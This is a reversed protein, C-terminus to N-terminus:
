ESEASGDCIFDDKCVFDLITLASYMLINGVPLVTLCDVIASYPIYQLYHQARFEQNGIKSCAKRPFAPVRRVVSPLAILQVGIRLFDTTM